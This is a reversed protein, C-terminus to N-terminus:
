AGATILIQLCWGHEVCKTVYYRFFEQVVFVNGAPHEEVDNSEM